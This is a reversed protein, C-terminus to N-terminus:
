LFHNTRHFNHEAPHLFVQSPAMWVGLLAAVCCRAGHHHLPATPGMAIAIECISLSQTRLFLHPATSFRHSISLILQAKMHDGLGRSTHPYLLSMLAKPLGNCQILRSYDRCTRSPHDCLAEARGIVHTVEYIHKASSSIMLWGRHFMKM